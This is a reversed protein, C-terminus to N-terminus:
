RRADQAPAEDAMLREDYEGALHVIGDLDQQWARRARDVAGALAAADAIDVAEYVVDGAARLAELRSAREHAADATPTKTSGPAASLLLRADFRELLERAVM